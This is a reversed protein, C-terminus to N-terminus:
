VLHPRLRKIIGYVSNRNWPKGSRSPLNQENLAAAIKQTSLRQGDADKRRLAFIRDAIEAEGPLEGFPKIGECRGTEAKMRARAVAMQMVLSSKQFQAVAGLVQRILTRTPDTDDDATLEQGSDAAFVRAGAERMQGLIMESIVLKRALRDAREVIVIKASGESRLYVILDTLAPRNELELKGSVGQQEAFERVLKLKHATVFGIITGRQRPFGDGALQGDSSVRLYSVAEAGSQIITM